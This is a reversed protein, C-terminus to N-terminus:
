RTPNNSDDELEKLMEIFHIAKDLDAIGGKDRWRCIYKIVCGEIFPINNAHIFTVPQITLGKYHKGGIQEELAAKARIVANFEGIRCAIDLLGHSDKTTGSDAVLRRAEDMRAQKETVAM